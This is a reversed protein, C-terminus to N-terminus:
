GRLGSGLAAAAARFDDLRRARRQAAELDEGWQSINWDEDVHAAAWAADTGIAGRALALAILASGSLTTAVHLAALRLPDDFSSLVTRVAALASEPQAIHMVGEALLFRAGFHKEAWALIPDWLERQRGVLGEPEGARYYLLDSGAYSLVDDRVEQMRPAVGDIATNALRTLPMSAPDIFDGQRNWEAAVGEAVAADAIAVPQRGPTMPRKGDLRLVFGGEEPAVSAAQYFRKQRVPASLRQASKIPDPVSSM